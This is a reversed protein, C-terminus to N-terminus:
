QDFSHNWSLTPRMNNRSVWLCGWGEKVGREIIIVTNRRWNGWELVKKIIGHITMVIGFRMIPYLYNVSKKKNDLNDPFWNFWLWSKGSDSFTTRTDGEDSSISTMVGSSSTTSRGDSELRELSVLFSSLSLRWGLELWDDDPTELVLWWLLKRDCYGEILITTTIMPIKGAATPTNRTQILRRTHERNALFFLLSVDDDGESEELLQPSEEERKKSICDLSEFWESEGESEFLMIIALPTKRYLLWSVDFSVIVIWNGRLMIWPSLCPFWREIEFFLFWWTWMFTM